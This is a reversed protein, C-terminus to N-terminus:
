SEEDWCGTDSYLHLYPVKAFIKVDPVYNHEPRARPALLTRRRDRPRHLSELNVAPYAPQASKNRSQLAMPSHMNPNATARILIVLLIIPSEVEEFM